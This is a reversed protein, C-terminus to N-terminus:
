KFKEAKKELDQEYFVPPNADMPDSKFKTVDEDEPTDQTKGHQGDQPSNLLSSPLLPRLSTIWAM